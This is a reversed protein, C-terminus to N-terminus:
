AVNSAPPSSTSPSSSRWRCGIASCARPSRPRRPPSRRTRTLCRPLRRGPAAAGRGRERQLRGQGPRRRRARGQARVADDARLRVPEGSELVEKATRSGLETLEDRRSQRWGAIDLMLRSRNGSSQQVALRTLEQLAELVSGRDGVLKELDEGGDISVIARGAEVDLDIDGDYDLVDLLRELYDGAIDGERVLQDEASVPASGPTAPPATVPSDAGDQATKPVIRRRERFEQPPTGASGSGRGRGGVRAVPEHDTTLAAEEPAASRPTAWRQQQYGLRELQQRQQEEGVRQRLRQEVRQEVRHGVRELRFRRGAQPSHRRTVPKAGPRKAPPEESPAAPEPRVPKQGVKPAFAQRTATIQERKESQEQDIKKYVLYQQGLTWLNNSVWYLLIALPLFPAGVVVGIPFVYLMLKHM